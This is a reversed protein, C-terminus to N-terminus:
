VVGKGGGGGEEGNGGEQGAGTGRGDRLYELHLLNQIAHGIGDLLRTVTNTPFPVLLVLQLLDPAQGCAGGGGGRWVREGGNPGM